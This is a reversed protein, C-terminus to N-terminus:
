APGLDSVYQFSNELLVWGSTVLFHCRKAKFALIRTVFSPSSKRESLLYISM